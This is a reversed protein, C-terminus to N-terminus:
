GLIQSLTTYFEEIKFFLGYGYDIFPFFYFIILFACVGSKIPMSLIFVNLQPSFRNILGLAVDCMLAVLVFPASVLVVQQMMWNLGEMAYLSTNASLLSPLLDAPPWIVYSSYFLNLFASFAGSSFFLTILAMFLLSGLPSAEAGSLIESGQAMSAGRQNDVLTGASVAVYFVLSILYAAVYGIMAEKLAIVGLLLWDGFADLTFDQVYGLMLPHLPVYLAIAVPGKVAATVQPGFFPVVAIFMGIRISGLLFAFFHQQADSSLM